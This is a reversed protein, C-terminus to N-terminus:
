HQQPQPTGGYGLQAATYRAAETIPVAYVATGYAYIETCVDGLEPRTSGCESSRM